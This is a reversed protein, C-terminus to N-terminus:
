SRYQIEKIAQISKLTKVLMDDSFLNPDIDGKIESLVTVQEAESLELYNSPFTTDKTDLLEEVMKTFANHHVRSDQRIDLTAFHFGFISVKHILDDLEELFLSKHEEILIVRAKM